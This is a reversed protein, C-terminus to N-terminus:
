RIFFLANNCRCEMYYNITDEYYEKIVQKMTKQILPFSQGDCFIRARLSDAISFIQEMNRIRIEFGANEDPFPLDPRAALADPRAWRTMTCEVPVHGARVQVQPEGETYMWGSLICTGNDELRYHCSDLTVIQDSM